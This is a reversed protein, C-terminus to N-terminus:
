LKPVTFFLICYKNCFYSVLDPFPLQVGYNYLLQEGATLFRSAFLCLHPSGKHIVLQPFATHKTSHNVLRGLKRQGHPEVTSDISCLLHIM